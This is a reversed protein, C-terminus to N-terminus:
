RERNQRKRKKLGPGVTITEALKLWLKGDRIDPALFKETTDLKIGFNTCFRSANIRYGSNTELVPLSDPLRASSVPEIAIVDRVRSFYLYVSPPKGLHRYLNRNM